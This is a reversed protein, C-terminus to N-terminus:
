RGAVQEDLEVSNDIKVKQGNRLKQHGASVVREGIALGEVIEVRGERVEGAQVQRRQVVLEGDKEEIVFVSDGYPNYTIATRPVTLVDEREPLETRVEAFMGPRLLGDPNDLAARIRASRTGPDIGPNIASIRGEFRRDTHAQVTLVVRQREALQAFHREPLSFDVYIPALSQLLVIQSGPALYQGLDVQRIGLLGDFPARIKKKRILARKAEVQAQASDLRAQAEDYDARSVTKQKYLREMRKFQLEALRREAILGELDARDVSDELQLLQEGARVRQGSQFEIASVQGPVENNVYIGQVAVLSGVSFLYPQWREARAQASAVVEPPRPKAMQAAMQRMQMYKWGFIGGFVLALAFLVLILRKIM